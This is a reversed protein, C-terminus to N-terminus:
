TTMKSISDNQNASLQKFRKIAAQSMTANIKASSDDGVTAPIAPLENFIANV